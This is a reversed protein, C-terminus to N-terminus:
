ALWRPCRIAMAPGLLEGPGGLEVRFGRLGTSTGYREIDARLLGVLEPPIPVTRTEADSARYRTV